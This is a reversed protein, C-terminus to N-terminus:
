MGRPLHRALVAFAFSALGSVIFVVPLDFFSLVAAMVGSTILDALDMYTRFVTTMQPREYPHAARLFPINGVADLCTGGLAGIMLLAAAALPIWGALGAAFTAAGAVCFAGSITRRLGFRAGIRGWLPTLFLLGSGASVMLGGFMPDASSRVMLLPGYVM